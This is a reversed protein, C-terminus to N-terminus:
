DFVVLNSKKAPSHCCFCKRYRSDELDVDQGFFTILRPHLRFTLPKDIPQPLIEGDLNWAGQQESQEDSRNETLLRGPTFSWRNVRFVQVDRRGGQLLAKGRPRDDRSGHQRGGNTYPALGYPTFPSICSVVMGIVHSFDTSWHFPEKPNAQEQGDCIRCPRKCEPMKPHQEPSKSNLAFSVRGFYAPHVVTTRLASYQYRVPGMWRYRESDALVDGLWGYSAANASIRLLKNGEHVTCIDVCCRSGVAIQLAATPRDDTGHVSSVISNASGAGIIGFRLHPTALGTINLDTIELQKEVQTRLVVSCLVENFLGDGGVSVVGDVSEWEEPTLEQLIDYAHNARETIYVTPKLGALKFLPEVEKEFINKAKGKGGFPNIYLLLKKPRAGIKGLAEQLKAEWHIKDTTTTFVVAAERVRWVYVNPRVAYYLYLVNPTDHNPADDEVRKPLGGYLKVQQSRLSLIDEMRITLHHKAKKKGDTSKVLVTELEDAGKANEDAALLSSAKLDKAEDTKEMLMAM